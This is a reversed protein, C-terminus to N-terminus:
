VVTSSTGTIDIPAASQIKEHNTDVSLQYQGSSIVEIRFQGDNATTANFTGSKGKLQVGAGGIPVGAADRFVGQWVTLATNQALIGISSLFCAVVAAGVVKSYWRMLQSARSNQTQTM